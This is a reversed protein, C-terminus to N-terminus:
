KCGIAKKGQPLETMTWTQNAELAALEKDMAEVWRVDHRAQEFHTPEHELFVNNLFALYSNDFMPLEALISAHLSTHSKKSLKPCYYDNLLTSPRRQRDSKRVTQEPQIVNQIIDSNNNDSPRSTTCSSDQTLSHIETETDPHSINVDNDCTNNETSQPQSDLIRETADNLAETFSKHHMENPVNLETIHKHQVLNDHLQRHRYPFISEKFIVDRSTFMTHKELDYLKYGKNGYPYGLFICKRARYGLKDRLKAPVTAYCLSGFVRLEDYSPLEGFLIEHPCKWDLKAVPMKNILYTATLLCEGWFKLPVNSQIKLARATDLLHRHKREVRANQQPTGAISTQHIIGRTNFMLKCPEQIFETGNDTRVLKIKGGFQTEVHILFAKIIQPVKQKTQILYTWTSRSHDDVITLFSKAGLMTSVKYPGWVDMHVLEFCTSAHSNSRPFPIAHHKSLICIQCDFSKTGNCLQAGSVHKLKDMSTHGLRQHLLYLDTDKMCNNSQVHKNLVKCKQKVTSNKYELDQSIKYLGAQKRGTALVKKNSLDQFWCVSPFFIVRMNTHQLLSGVSLLNQRFGPVVFVNKLKIHETLQMTGINHVLKLSGDPLVVTIPRNLKTIDHLLQINSTMHDSAGTDVIWSSAHSYDQIAYAYSYDSNGSFNMSQSANASGATSSPFRQSINKIVRDTITDVLGSVLDDNDAISTSGKLMSQPTQLPTFDDYDDFEDDCYSINANNAGGRNYGGRGRKSNHGGRAAKNRAALLKKLKYCHERIHGKIKCFTCTQLQFCEEILHGKKNCNACKKQPPPDEQDTKQKKTFHDSNGDKSAFSQHSAYANAEPVSEILDSLQKQKEVKQLLGLVRNITPMIEMTLVHEKVSEYTSNLGMLLQILKSHAERDLIRKFLNCTCANMAGCICMPLPDIDDIEEWTRKLTGYYDVIPLNDQSINTLDRKLQYLEIGNLQGYREVLETWLDKSYTVYAFNDRLKKDMSHKIWQLVLMDCRSWLNYRKDTKPPRPCTGTVFGDKNKSALALLVDRKDVSGSSDSHPPSHSSDPM